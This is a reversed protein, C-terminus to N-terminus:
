TEDLPLALQATEDAAVAGRIANAAAARDEAEALQVTPLAELGTLGFQQLFELTTGFLIPRGVTNARGVEMVLGHQVLTQLARDCNVNRIGELQARTIPQRYAIIALTELAATTLRAHTPMGLLAAVFRANEPASVLQVQEGAQQLRLGRRKEEYDAALLTLAARLDDGDVALMKRLDAVDLARGAVFLLSEVASAIQAMTLPTAAETISQDHPIAM